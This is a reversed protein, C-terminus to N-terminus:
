KLQIASHCYHAWMQKLDAMCLELFHWHGNGGLKIRRSETKEGAIIQKINFIRRIFLTRAIFGLLKIKEDFIM